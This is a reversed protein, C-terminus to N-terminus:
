GYTSVEIGNNDVWRSLDAVDDMDVNCWPDIIVIVDDRLMFNGRHMDLKRGETDDEDPDSEFFTITSDGVRRGNRFHTTYAKITQLVELMQTPQPIQYKYPAILTLLEEDSHWGSVYGELISTLDSAKGIANVPSLREMVCVYYESQTDIYFSKIQPVHPNDKHQAIVLQKYDLWPDYVDTGIKIADEGNRSAIAASYCGVGLMSNGQRTLNKIIRHATMLQEM